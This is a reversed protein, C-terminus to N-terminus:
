CVLTKAIASGHKCLTLSKYKEWETWGSLLSPTPLFKPSSVTPADSEFHGFSCETGCLTMSLLLFIITKEKWPRQQESVTQADSQKPATTLSDRQMM